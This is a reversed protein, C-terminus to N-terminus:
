GARGPIGTPLIILYVCIGIAVACVGMTITGSLRILRGPFGSTIELDLGASRTHESMRRCVAEARHSQSAVFSRVRLACYLTILNLVVGVGALTRVVDPGLGGQAIIWGLAVVQIGHFWISWSHYAQWGTVVSDRLRALEAQLAAFAAANLTEEADSM